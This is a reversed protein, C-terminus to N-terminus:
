RDPDEPVEISCNSLPFAKCPHLFGYREDAARAGPGPPSYCRGDVLRSRCWGCEGARCLSPPRLGAREMAVLLPEDAAAPISVTEPGIRAELTFTRSAAEPPYGPWAEPSFRAPAAELRIRRPTPELRALEGLAFRRMADPGSVFFAADGARHAAREILAATIYGREGTWAGAAGDREVVPLYSFRDPYREALEGFYGSFLLEAPEAAGHILAVRTGDRALADGVISRFPTVGCGGALCVLREGDRLPEHYFVGAPASCRVTTGPEWTGLILPACFGGPANKVTLEYYGGGEAEDPTSSISYPRSARVEGAEVFVSLYQGARFPPLCASGDAQALRYTRTTPSDDRVSLIRLQLGAPHLAKALETVHGPAKPEGPADRFRRSRERFPAVFALVDRVPGRLTVSM